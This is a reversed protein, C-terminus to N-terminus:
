PKFSKPMISNGDPLNAARRAADAAQSLLYQVPALAGGGALGALELALDAIYAAKDRDTAFGLGGHGDLRATDSAYVRARKREPM